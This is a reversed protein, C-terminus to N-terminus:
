MFIGQSLIKNNVKVNSRNETFNANTMGELYYNGICSGNQVHDNRLQSMIKRCTCTDYIQRTAKTMKPIPWM